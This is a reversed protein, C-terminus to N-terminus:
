ENKELLNILSNILKINKDYAMRKPGLFAIYTDRGSLSFKSILISFDENKFPSEHGIYIKIENDGIEQYFNKEFRKEFEKLLYFFSHVKEINTFEPYHLTEEFGERWFIKEKELYSYTLASSIGALFATLERLFAIEDKTNLKIKTLKKELNRNRSEKKELLKNVFYRYAKDSPVRGASTHPQILYGKETLEKLENRITAPSIFLNYKKEIYSSSIPEVLDIYDRIVIELILKQRNTIEM